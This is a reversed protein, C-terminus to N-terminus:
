HTFINQMKAKKEVSKISTPKKGEKRRRDSDTRLDFVFIISIISEEDRQVSVPNNHTHQPVHSNTTASIWAVSIAWKGRGRVGRTIICIKGAM